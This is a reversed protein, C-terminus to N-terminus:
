SKTEFDFRDKELVDPIFCDPSKGFIRYRYRAVLDYVADRLPRPIYSMWRLLQWPWSFTKIIELIADSKKYFTAKHFLVISDFSEDELHYQKILSDTILTHPRTFIFLARPDRKIIFRVSSSCLLCHEDFIIISKEPM